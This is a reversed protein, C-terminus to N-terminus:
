KQPEIKPSVATGDMLVIMTVSGDVGIPGEAQKDPHREFTILYDWIEIGDAADLTSTAPQLRVDALTWNRKAPFIEMLKRQASAIADRVSCPPNKDAIKWVSQDNAAKDNLAFTLKKGDIYSFASWVSGNEYHGGVKAVTQGFTGISLLSVLLGLHIKMITHTTAWRFFGLWTPVTGHSRFDSLRLDSDVLWTPEPLDNPRLVTM